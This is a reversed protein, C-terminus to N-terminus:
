RRVKQKPIDSFLLICLVYVLSTSNNLFDDLGGKSETAMWTILSFAYIFNCIFTFCIQWYFLNYIENVNKKLSFIEKRMNEFLLMKELKKSEKTLKSQNQEVLKLVNFELPHMLNLIIFNICFFTDSLNIINIGALVRFTEKAVIGFTLEREIGEVRGTICCWLFYLKLVIIFMIMRYEKTLNHPYLKNRSCLKKLPILCSSFNFRVYVLTVIFWLDWIEQIIMCIFNLIKIVGFDFSDITFSKINFSVPISILYLLYLSLVAVFVANYYVTAILHHWKPKGTSFKYKVFGFFCAIFLNIKLCRHYMIAKM